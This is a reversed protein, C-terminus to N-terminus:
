TLRGEFAPVDITQSEGGTRDRAQSVGKPSSRVLEHPRERRSAKNGGPLVDMHPQRSGFKGGHSLVGRQQRDSDKGIPSVRLANRTIAVGNQPPLRNRQM